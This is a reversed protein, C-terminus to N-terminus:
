PQKLNEEEWEELTYIYTLVYYWWVYHVRTARVYMATIVLSNINCM